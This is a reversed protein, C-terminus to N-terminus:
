GLAAVCPSLREAAQQSWGRHQDPEPFPVTLVSVQHAADGGVIVRASDQTPDGVYVFAVPRGSAAAYAYQQYQDAMPMAALGGTLSKYKADVYAVTLGEPTHVALDPRKGPGDERIRVPLPAHVLRSGDALRVTSLMREFLAATSVRVAASVAPRMADAVDETGFPYRGTLLGRALAVPVAATRTTRTHWRRPLGALAQRPHVLTADHLRREVREARLAADRRGLEQLEIASIRAAARLLRHWPSDHDLEDFSCHIGLRRRADREALRHPQIRGRVTALEAEEGRFHPRRRAVYAEAQEVFTRLLLPRLEPVHSLLSDALYTPSRTTDEEIEPIRLLDLSGFHEILEWMSQPNTAPVPALGSGVDAIAVEDFLRVRGPAYQERGDRDSGEGGEDSDVFELGMLATAGRRAVDANSSSLVLYRGEHVVVSHRRDDGPAKDLDVVSTGQAAWFKPLVSIQLLWTGEIGEVAVIAVGCGNGSRSARLAVQHM